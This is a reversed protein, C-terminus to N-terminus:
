LMTLIVAMKKNYALPSSRTVWNVLFFLYKTLETQDFFREYYLAGNLSIYLIYMLSMNIYKTKLM